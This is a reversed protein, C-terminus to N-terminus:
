VRAAGQNKNYCKSCLVGRIEGGEITSLVYCGHAHLTYYSRDCRDCVFHDCRTNWFWPM